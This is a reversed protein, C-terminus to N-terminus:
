ISFCRDLLWSALSLLVFIFVCHLLLFFFCFYHFPPILCLVTFFADPLVILCAPMLFAPDCPSFAPWSTVSALRSSRVLLFLLRPCSLCPHLSLSSSELSSVRPLLHAFLRLGFRLCWSAGLVFVRASWWSAFCWVVGSWARGGFVGFPFRRSSVVGCWAVGVGCGFRLVCFPLALSIPSSLPLLFLVRSDGSLSFSSSSLSLPQHNLRGQLLLVAFIDLPPVLPSPSSVLFFPVSPLCASVCARLPCVGRLFSYALSSVCRSVSCVPSLTSLNSLADDLICFAFVFFCLLFFHM